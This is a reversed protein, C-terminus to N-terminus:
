CNQRLLEADRVNSDTSPLGALSRNGSPAANVYLLGGGTLHRAFFEAGIKVPPENTLGRLGGSIGSIRQSAVVSSTATKSPYQEAVPLFRVSTM